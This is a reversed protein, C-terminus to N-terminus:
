KAQRQREYKRYEYKLNITKNFHVQCTIYSTHNELLISISFIGAGPCVGTLSLFVSVKYNHEYWITHFHYAALSIIDYIIKTIEIAALNQLLLQQNVNSNRRNRLCCIGFINLLLSLGSLSLTIIVTVSASM